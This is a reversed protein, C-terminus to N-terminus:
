RAWDLCDLTTVVGGAASLESTVARVRSPGEACVAHSSSRSGTLDELLIVRDTGAGSAPEFFGLVAKRVCSTLIFGIILFTHRGDRKLRDVCSRFAPAKWADMCPKDVRYWHPRPNLGAILACDTNAGPLCLGHLPDAADGPAFQGPAYRSTVLVVAVDDPLRELFATLRAAARHLTATEELGYKRALSGDPSCFGVQPDIVM